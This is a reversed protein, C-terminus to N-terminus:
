HAVEDVNRHSVMEIVVGLLGAIKEVVVIGGVRFVPFKQAPEPVNHASLQRTSGLAEIEPGAGPGSQHM